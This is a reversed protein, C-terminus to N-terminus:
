YPRTPESIHILSLNYEGIIANVNNEADAETEHYSITLGSQGQSIIDNYSTLDFVGFGDADPDCYELDPPSTASPAYIVSLLLSTTASCNSILDYVRVYITQPNSINTYNNPM